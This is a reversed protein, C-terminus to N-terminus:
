RARLHQVDGATVARVERGDNLLLHGAADVGQAVGQVEQGGPLTVAVERGITACRQRYQAAIGSREADMGAALLAAYRRHLQRLCRAVLDDPDPAAGGGLVISSAEPVPLEEATMATNIGFGVVAADGVRELLVGAIKGPRDGEVLVDNPWKLTTAVGASETVGEAVALGTLLPLWGLAAPDGHPRLIVSVSVSAGPPSVWHRGLRGRGATQEDAALVTGEAAGAAALALLDENTSGTAAVVTVSAWPLGTLAERLRAQSLTPRNPAQTM